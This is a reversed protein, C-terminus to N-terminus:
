DEPRMTEKANGSEDKLVIKPASNIRYKVTLQKYNQAKSGIFAQLHPEFNVRGPCVELTAKAYKVFEAFTNCDRCLGLGTFGLKECDDEEAALAPRQLSFLLLLLFLAWRPSWAAFQRGIAGFIGM